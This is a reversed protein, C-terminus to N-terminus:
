IYGKQVRINLVWNKTQILYLIRYPRAQSQGPRPQDVQTQNSSLEPRTQTLYDLKSQIQDPKSPNSQILKPRTIPTQSRDSKSAINVFQDQRGVQRTTKKFSDDDYIDSM